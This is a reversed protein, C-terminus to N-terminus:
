RASSTTPSSSASRKDEDDLKTKAVLARVMADTDERAQKQVKETALLDEKVRQLRDQLMRALDEPAVVQLTYPQSEGLRKSEDVLINNDWAAAKYTVKDGPHLGYVALDLRYKVLATRTTDAPFQLGEAKDEKAANAASLMELKLRLEAKVLGYDDKFDMELPVIARPTVQKPRGPVLIRVEPPKDVVATVSFVVPKPGDAYGDTSTLEFRFRVTKAVNFKGSLVRSALKDAGAVKPDEGYEKKPEPLPQGAVPKAAPDDTEFILKSKAIAKNSVVEYRIETGVPVRLDPQTEPKEAPTAPM